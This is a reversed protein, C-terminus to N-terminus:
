EQNGVSPQPIRAHIEASGRAPRALEVAIEHLGEPLPVSVRDLKSPVRDSLNTYSATSAKTTRFELDRLIRGKEVLRLRYSATGRMTADFDLRAVLELTTPGVVRLQVPRGPFVSYYPIVKEGEAVSVSRAALVPTISVMPTRSRPGGSKHIRVLASGAGSLTLSLRHPGEAVDFTLARSKGLRPGQGALTAGPAASSETSMRDIAKGGESVRLQYALAASSNPPLEVRTTLRVQAPGAVQIELPRDRLLRFYIRGKGNVLVTVPAAGALSEIARWRQARAPAALLLAAALAGWRPTRM